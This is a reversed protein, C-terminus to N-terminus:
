APGAAPKAATEAPEDAVQPLRGRIFLAFLLAAFAIGIMVVWVGQVSVALASMTEAGFQDPTLQTPFGPRMANFRAVQWAGLLSLVISGGLNGLFWVLSNGTGVDKKPVSYQIALQTPAFTLGVGLGLPILAGVLGLPIIVATFRFLPPVTPVLSLFISGITVLVLGLTVPLRYGARAVLQGGMAAGLIMPIMFAYLVDRSDDPSGMLGGQVLIPVYTV